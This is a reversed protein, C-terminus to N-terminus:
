SRIFCAFQGEPFVAVVEGERFLRLTGGSADFDTANIEVTTRAHDTLYVTFVKM